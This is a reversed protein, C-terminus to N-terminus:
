MNVPTLLQQSTTWRYRSSHADTTSFTVPKNMPIMAAAMRPAYLSMTLLSPRQSSAPCVSTVDRLKNFESEESASKRTCGGTRFM